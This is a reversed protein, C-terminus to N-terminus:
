KRYGYITVGGTVTVAANTLFQIGNYSTNGNQHSGGFRMAFQSPYSYANSTIFTRQVLVPSYCTLTASSLPENAASSTIGTFGISQGTSANSNIAGGNLTLGVFAWFYNTNADPTANNMFRFYLDASSNFSIKDLVIVYNDFESTFCNAFSTATGSLNGQAVLVMAPPQSASVMKVWNSGDYTYISNDADIYATMGEALTPEGVGGFAADRATTTAFRMIVQDALYNNVDDSSLKSFAPFKKAGAGAM